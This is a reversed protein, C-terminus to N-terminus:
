FDVDFEEDQDDRKMVNVRYAGIAEEQPSPQSKSINLWNEMFKIPNTSPLKHEPEIKLFQYVDKANFLVWNKLIESNMGVLERGESFLYDAWELESNVVSDILDKIKDSCQEMALKGRETKLETRLVEKDMKVHVELEDQAIKQVAKAIPQFLGSEAITFTVAFSALFQIRELVLLAVVFMFVDNYTEQNNEGEGLAYKHSTVYAKHMVEAVVDLRTLAQETELITNLVENPDEFSNRVIESYTLSHVVENKTIEAWAAYAETSTLFPAVVPLITKAAASDAEYQWALTKIMADYTSKSCSKFEANCTSFDFENEDWDLSKMEKYIDWIKPYNRNVTDLLGMDEGLFISQNGKRNNTNLIKSDLM